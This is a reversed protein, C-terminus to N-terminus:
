VALSAPLLLPERGGPQSMGHQADGGLAWARGGDGQQRGPLVRPHRLSISRTINATSCWDWSKEGRRQGKKHKGAPVKKGVPTRATVQTPGTLAVGLVPVQLVTHTPWASRSPRDRRPSVLPPSSSLLLNNSPNEM